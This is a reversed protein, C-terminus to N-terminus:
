FRVKELDFLDSAREAFYTNGLNQLNKARRRLVQSTAFEPSYHRERILTEVEDILKPDRALQLHADFIAAYEAGLRDSALQVNASIERCVGELACRFRVTEAEVADVRVFRQPIRFDETGFVLAPGIAVGPSVPIGQKVIM